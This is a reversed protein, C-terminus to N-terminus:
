IIDWNLFEPEWVDVGIGSKEPGATAPSEPLLLKREQRKGRNAM